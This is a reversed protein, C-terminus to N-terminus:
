ERGRRRRLAASVRRRTRDTLATIPVPELRYSAYHEEVAGFRSKFLALPSGPASDGMHYATCGAAAADEIATRHLLYNAYSRGAADEDMAGRWYAAVAPGFLVIIAAVPRGDVRAVYTRCRPGCVAAVTPLKRTPERRAARRRAFALPVGERRAWRDVSRAYLEQFVPLLRGTDDRQVVVGAREARRVRTRTDGRFRKRWVEDFGGALSLTQAMLPRRLARRPRAADWSPGTAPDPRVSVRLAHRDALDAFVMRADDPRVEGGEGLLGAPGWGTPGSSETWLVGPLVARRVLPLVLRRGDATEYLRSANRYGGVACVCDLWEPTQTPLARPASALVEAWAGAPAPSTVIFPRGAAVQRPRPALTTSM